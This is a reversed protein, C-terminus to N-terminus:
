WRKLKDSATRELRPVCRFEKPVKYQALREYCFRRLENRDFSAEPGDRLVIDAAPLQGYQPHPLGYVLSEEISPHQNLVAEVEYPFVKMGAFNIVNKERGVIFLFGDGDLRGMDGTNFWGDALVERRSRWPSFYADFMGKGRLHVEGVGEKDPHAIKVEYDPLIHGVSGRKAENGSQNIFPLGVEIIGYAEVLEFGFREFFERSRDEPLKMATSVAFRIDTFFDPSFLSSQVMFQYHFPSAYLFTGRHRELGDLLSRPFAGSCLVIKAGRRLFLLITVVFHFSMSLVWIVVDDASMHLVKDAAETRQLIAEHSLLVGKSSGTTGSSFRIFAPEMAYYVAPLEERATREYLSLVKESARGGFAMRAFVRHSDKRSHIAEDFIFFHVDIQDLVAEIEDMSLSVPVPVIAAQLSLVALSVVIYEISDGCLLAVRHTPRIGNAKLEAAVRDVLSFLEGYAIEREGEAIAIRHRYDRAEDKITQAINM